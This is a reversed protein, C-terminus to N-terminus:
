FLRFVSPLNPQHDTQNLNGVPALSFYYTCAVVDDLRRYLTINNTVRQVRRRM